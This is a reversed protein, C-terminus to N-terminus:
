DLSLLSPGLPHTDNTAGLFCFGQRILTQNRREETDLRIERITQTLWPVRQNHLLPFPLYRGLSLTNTALLMPMIGLGRVRLDTIWRGRRVRLCKGKELYDRTKKHFPAFLHNAHPKFVGAHPLFRCKMRPPLLSMTYFYPHHHM